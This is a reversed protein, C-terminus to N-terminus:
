IYLDLQQSNISYHASTECSQEVLSQIKWPQVLYQRVGKCAHTSGDWILTDGELPRSLAIPFNTSSLM